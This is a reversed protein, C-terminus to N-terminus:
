NVKPPEFTAMVDGTLGNWVRLVGDQGAAIVIKGDATTAVANMFDTSGSYSRVRDGNEKFLAVGHDGSSAVAQDTIGVYNIGTVEKGFSEINKKREGTVPDWIKIVNDAGASALAHGDARWSVGLVHHLHGELTRVVQGSDLDLIKIQRDAAGSALYHGDRSFDLSFVADSHARNFSQLLKGDRVQWLDIEGGRTPEGGGSALRQGDTSFRLTNVRDAIPGNTGLTQQLNWTTRLDWIVASRDASASVLRDAGAFALAFVAGQHGHYSDWASGNDASAAHLVGDDGATLLTRGDRSFALARIMSRSSATAAQRAAELANAASQRALEAQDIRVQANTVAAASTAVAQTALQHETEAASRPLAAKKLEADADALTKTTASLKENAQKLKDVTASPFADRVTKAAALLKSKEESTATLDAVIMPDAPSKEQAAKLQDRAESAAKEAAELTTTALQLDKFEALAKEAAEHATRTETLKTQKEKFPKEADAFAKTAKELRTQQVHHENTATQWATKRFALENTALTATRGAEPLAIELDHDSTLTAIEKGEKADWLKPSQNLGATALRQGDRRVALALVPGGSKIQRLVKGENLDWFRVTGDGSASLFQTPEGPWTALATVSGEHGRFERLPRLDGRIVDAFWLRIVADASGSLLQGEGPLWALANIDALTTAQLLQRGTACDWLRITHDAAASALRSNDPSFQLASMAGQHGALHHLSQGTALNWLEIVGQDDGTAAWREDPSTAVTLVARSAPHPLTFKKADRPRRWLKIERYGGSALWQGDPSFALANVFDRHAVGPRGAGGSALLQPDTLRTVLERTPLHYIFIQNARGCAAFQGDPSLAVSYIPQLGPPLTQWAIESAGHVEGTAGQDIWLQLLALEVSSLDGAEVKNNRPPMIPKDLHAAVKLLLSDGAHGPVIVKGSDSGQRIDQPTELILGAKSTTKNHCALCNKRFVPLLEREFDVPTSHDIKGIALPKIQPDAPPPDAAWASVALLLLGSFLLSKM